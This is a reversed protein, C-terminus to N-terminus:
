LEKMKTVTVTCSKTVTILNNQSLSHLLSRGTGQKDVRICLSPSSSSSALNPVPCSRMRRVKFTTGVVLVCGWAGLWSPSAKAEYNPASLYVGERCIERIFPKVELGTGRLLGREPSSRTALNNRTSILIFHCARRQYVALHIVAVEERDGGESHRRLHSATSLRNYLENADVLTLM